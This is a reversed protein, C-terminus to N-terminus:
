LAVPKSSETCAESSQKACALLTGRLTTPLRDQARQAGVEMADHAGASSALVDAGCPTAFKLRMAWSAPAEGSPAAAANVSFVEQGYQRQDGVVRNVGVALLLDVVMEEQWLTACEPHEHLFM